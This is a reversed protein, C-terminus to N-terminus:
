DEEYNGSRVPIRTDAPAQYAWDIDFPVRELLAAELAAPSLAGDLIRRTAAVVPLTLALSEALRDCARLTNIGEPLETLEALIDALARGQGLETGVRRNLSHTSTCSLYLDALGALGFFSNWCGGLAVALHGIEAVGRTLLMSSTNTAWNMGAAIGVAIAVVNKLSSALEVGVLDANGHVRLHPRELLRACMNTADQSTTAVVIASLKGAMMEPTINPGAIAGVDSGACEAKLVTSLREYSSPELGKTASLLVQGATVLPGLLRAVARFSASPTANIVLSAGRVCAAMDTTATLGDALMHGPFFREHRHRNVSVVTSPSCWLTARRGGSAVLHGLAIAMTGEGLIAVHRASM